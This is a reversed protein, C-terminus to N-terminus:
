KRLRQHTQVPGPKSGVLIQQLEAFACRAVRDERIRLLGVVHHQQDVIEFGIRPVAAPPEDIQQVIEDLAAATLPEVLACLELLALGDLTPRQERAM